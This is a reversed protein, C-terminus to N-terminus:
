AAPGAGSVTAAPCDVQRVVVLIPHHVNLMACDGVELSWPDVEREGYSTKRKFCPATGGPHEGPGIQEFCVETNTKSTVEAPWEDGGQFDCGALLLAVAIAGLVM